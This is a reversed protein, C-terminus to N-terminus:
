SAAAVCHPTPFGGPAQLSQSRGVSTGGRHGRVRPLFGPAGASNCRPHGPGARPPSNLVPFHPPVPGAPSAWSHPFTERAPLLGGQPFPGPLRPGRSAGASGSRPNPPPFPINTGGWVRGTQHSCSGAGRAGWEGTLGWWGGPAGLSLRCSLWGEGGRGLLHHGSAKSGLPRSNLPQVCAAGRRERPAPFLSLISSASAAFRSSPGCAGSVLHPCPSSLGEWTEAEPDEPVRAWM